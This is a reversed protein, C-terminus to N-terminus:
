ATHHPMDLLQVRNNWTLHRLQLQIKSAPQTHTRAVDLNPLDSNVRSGLALPKHQQQLHTPKRPPLPPPAAGRSRALAM